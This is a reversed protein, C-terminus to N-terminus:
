LFEKHFVPKSISNLARNIDDNRCFYPCDNCDITEFVERIRSSNWIEKLTTENLDGLFYNQKQRHHICAFVKFDATVVTNFFMGYCKSYPRKEGDNFRSYKHISATVKFNEDEFMEKSKNFENEISTFDGTFPRLQAFGVGCEKSLRFFDFIDGKTLESTLFGTGFGIKSDLQKKMCSFMKINDIVKNFSNQDMGHTKTYIDPTGADLSIRFYSCCELIAKAKEEDLALGNSNLGIKIGKQKIYYLVDSFNPHILPEGGGSIVISEVHFIESLEDILKKIQKFTLAASNDNVGTCDPCKNNCLNTLDLEISILTKYGNFFYNLKDQYQLIKDYANFKNVKM